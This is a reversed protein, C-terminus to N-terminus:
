AELDCREAVSQHERASLTTLQAKLVTPLAEGDKIRIPLTDEVPELTPSRPIAPTTKQSHPTQTAESARRKAAQERRERTPFKRKEAM